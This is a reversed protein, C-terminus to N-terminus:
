VAPHLFRLFIARDTYQCDPDQLHSPCCSPRCVVVLRVFSIHARNGRDWRGPNVLPQVRKARVRGTDAQYLQHNGNGNDTNQCGDGKRIQPALCRFIPAVVKNGPQVGHQSDCRLIRQCGVANVLHVKIKGAVCDRYQHILLRGAFLTLTRVFEHLCGVGVGGVLIIVRKLRAIKVYALFIFKAGPFFFLCPKEDHRFAQCLINDDVHAIGVICLHVLGPCWEAQNHVRKGYLKICIICEGFWLAVPKTIISITSVSAIIPMIM